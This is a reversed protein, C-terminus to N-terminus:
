QATPETYEVKKEVPVGNPGIYQYDGFGLILWFVPPLAILGVIFLEDSQGFARALKFSFLISVAINVFPIFLALFILGNGWGLQYLEYMKLFPVISKWSEVGVKEFIKWCAATTLGWFAFLSFLIM